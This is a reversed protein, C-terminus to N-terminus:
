YGGETIGLAKSDAVKLGFLWRVIIPRYNNRYDTLKVNLWYYSRKKGSVYQNTLTDYVAWGRGWGRIELRDVVSFSTSSAIM